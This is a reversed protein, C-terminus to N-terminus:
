ARAVVCLEEGLSCISALRQIAHSLPQIAVVVASRDRRSTSTASESVHSIRLRPKVLGLSGALCFALARPDGVDTTASVCVLGARELLARLSKSTFYSLHWPTTWVWHEFGLRCFLGTANPVAIVAIGGPRLSYRLRCMVSYPDPMHELVHWLMIADFASLPLDDLNEYTKFAHKTLHALAGRSKEFTEVRYGVNRLGDAIFGYSAGFDLIRAGSRLLGRMFRVRRAVASGLSGSYSHIYEEENQGVSNDAIDRRDVISRHGCNKCSRYSYCGLRLTTPGIKTSSCAACTHGLEPRDYSIM